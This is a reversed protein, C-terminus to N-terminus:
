RWTFPTVTARPVSAISIPSTEHRADVVPQWRGASFCLVLALTAAFAGVAQLSLRERWGLIPAGAWRALAVLRADAASSAERPVLARPLRELLAECAELEGLDRMCRACGGLHERVRAELTAPLTRDLIAPLLGRAERHNM